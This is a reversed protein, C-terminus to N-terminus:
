SARRKEHRGHLAALTAIDNVLRSAEDVATQRDTYRYTESRTLVTTSLWRTGTWAHDLHDLVAWGDAHGDDRRRVLLDDCRGLPSPIRFETGLELQAALQAIYARDTM